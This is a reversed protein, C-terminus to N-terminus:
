RTEWYVIKNGTSTSMWVLKEQGSATRKKGKKDSLSTKYRNRSVFSGEGAGFIRIDSVEYSVNRATAYFKKMSSVLSASSEGGQGRFDPSFYSLMKDTDAESILKQADKYFQAIDKVQDPNVGVAYTIGGEKKQTKESENNKCGVFLILLFGITFLGALGRVKPPTACPTLGGFGSVNKM